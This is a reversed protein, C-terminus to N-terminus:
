RIKLINSKKTENFKDYKSLVNLLKSYDIENDTVHIINDFCYNKVLSKYKYRIVYKFNDMNNDFVFLISVKNSKYQGDISKIKVDVHWKNPLSDYDYVDEIFTSIEDKLDLQYLRYIIVYKSIDNLVLDIIDNVSNWLIIIRKIFVLEREVNLKFINM